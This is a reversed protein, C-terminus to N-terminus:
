EVNQDESRNIVNGPLKVDEKKKKTRYKLKRYINNINIETIETARPEQLVYGDNFM